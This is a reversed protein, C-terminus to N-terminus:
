TYVKNGKPNATNYADALEQTTIDHGAIHIRAMEGGLINVAEVTNQFLDSPMEVLMVNLYMSFIENECEKTIAEQAGKDSDPSRKISLPISPSIPEKFWQEGTDYIRQWRDYIEDFAEKAGYPARKYITDVLEPCYAKVADRVSFPSYM